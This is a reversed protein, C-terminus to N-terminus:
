RKQSLHHASALKTLLGASAEIIVGLFLQYLLIAALCQTIFVTVQQEHHTYLM